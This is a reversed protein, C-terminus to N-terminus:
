GGLHGRPVVAHLGARGQISIHHVMDLLHLAFLVHSGGIPQYENLSIGENEIILDKDTVM